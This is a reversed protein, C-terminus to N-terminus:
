VGSVALIWASRNSRNWADPWFMIQRETKGVVIIGYMSSCYSAAYMESVDRSVTTVAGDPHICKIAEFGDQFGSCFIIDEFALVFIPRFLGHLLHGLLAGDSVRYKSVRKDIISSDVVIIANGDDVFTIGMPASTPSMITQLVEGTDYRRLQVYGSIQSVAVVDTAACYELGYCTSCLNRTGLWRLFSGDTSIEVIAYNSKSHILVTDVGNRYVFCASTM